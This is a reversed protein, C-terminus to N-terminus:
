RRKLSHPCCTPSTHALHPRPKRLLLAVHSPYTPSTRVIHPHMHTLYAIVLAWFGLGFPALVAALLLSWRVFDEYVQLPMDGDVQLKCKM